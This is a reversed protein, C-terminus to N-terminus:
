SEVWPRQRHRDVDLAAMTTPSCRMATSASRSGVGQRPVLEADVHDDLRGPQEGGPLRGGGMQLGTVRTMMEAGAASTSAVKTM